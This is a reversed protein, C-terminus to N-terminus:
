TFSQPTAANATRPQYQQAPRVFPSESREQQENCVGYSTRSKYKVALNTKGQVINDRTGPNHEHPHAFGPLPPIDANVLGSHETRSQNGNETTRQGFELMFVDAHGCLTRKPRGDVVYLAVCVTGICRVHRSVRRREYDTPQVM